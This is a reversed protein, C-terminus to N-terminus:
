IFLFELFFSGLFMIVMEIFCGVGVVGFGLVFGVVVFVGLVVLVVVLLFGVGRVGLFFVM